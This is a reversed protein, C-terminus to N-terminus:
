SNERVHYGIYTIALGLLAVFAFYYPLFGTFAELIMAGERPWQLVPLLFFIFLSLALFGRGPRGAIIWSGGPLVTLLALLARSPQYDRFYLYTRAHKRDKLAFFLAILIIGTVIILLPSMGLMLTTAMKKHAKESGEFPILASTVISSAPLNIEAVAKNSAEGLLEERDRLEKTYASDKDLAKRFYTRSGNTERLEFKVKSFNFYFGASDLGNAEADKFLTNSFKHNGRLFAILGKQASIYENEGLLAEAKSFAKEAEDLELYRRLIQGYMYFAVGDTPRRKTLEELTTKDSVRYVGSYSNLMAQIGDDTLWVGLNSRLPILAGWLVLVIGAFLGLLRKEPLFLFLAASWAFLCWLPGMVCPLCFLFVAAFPTFLGQLTAPVKRVVNELFENIKFSFHFLFAFYLGLTLAWLLPYIMAKMIGLLMQPSSGVQDFAKQLLEWPTSFGTGHALRSSQILVKPSNPSLQLAKRLYFAADEMERRDLHELGKSVLDLSYRELSNIGLKLKLDALENVGANVVQVDEEMMGDRVKLWVERMQDPTVTLTEALGMPQAEKVEAAEGETEKALDESAEKAAPDKAEAEEASLYNSPAILSGLFVIILVLYRSM